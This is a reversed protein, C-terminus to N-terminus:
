LMMELQAYNQVIADAEKQGKIDAGPRQYAICSMQASHAADIGNASVEVVLCAEPKIGLLKAALLFVDPEPKYRAAEQGSVVVQFYKRLNTKELILEIIEPYYSSAVAMPFKKQWLKELLDVLGLMVPIEELESFYRMSEARKREKIDKESVSKLHFQSIENWIMDSRGLINQYHEEELLNMEIQRKEFEVQFADNDALIVDLDFIVAKIM